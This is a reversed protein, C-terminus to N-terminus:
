VGIELKFASWQAPSLEIIGASCNDRSRLTIVYTGDRGRRTVNFYAPYRQYREVETYTYVCEDGPMM